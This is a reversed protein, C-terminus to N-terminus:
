ALSGLAAVESTIWRDPTVLFKMLKKKDLSYVKPGVVVIEDFVVLHKTVRFLEESLNGPGLFHGAQM